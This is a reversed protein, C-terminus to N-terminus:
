CHNLLEIMKVADTYHAWTIVFVYGCGCESLKHLSARMEVLLLGWTLRVHLICFTVSEDTLCSEQLTFM